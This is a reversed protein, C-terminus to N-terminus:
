GGITIGDLKWMSFGSKKLRIIGSFTKREVPTITENGKELYFDVEARYRFSVTKAKRADKEDEAEEMEELKVSVVGTREVPAKMEQFLLVHPIGIGSLAERGAETVRRGWQIEYIEALDAESLEKLMPARDARYLATIMERGQRVASMHHWVLCVAAIVFACAPFVSPRVAKGYRIGAAKGM